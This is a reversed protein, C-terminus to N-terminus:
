RGIDIKTLSQSKCTQSPGLTLKFDSVTGSGMYAPLSSLDIQMVGARLRLEVANKPDYAESEKKWALWAMFSENSGGCDLGVVLKHSSAVSLAQSPRIEYVNAVQGSVILGDHKSEYPDKLLKANLFASSQFNEDRGMNVTPPPFKLFWPERLAREVITVFVYDPKFHNVIEALQGQDTVEYHLQLVESFTTAMLPALNNGFSDRLWLVKAQNLASKSKYVKPERPAPVHPASGLVELRQQTKFDFVEVPSAQELRIEIGIDQDKLQDVLGLFKALDGGTRERPQHITVSKEDPLKIPLNAAVLPKFFLNFGFWAGLNNWHSDTKYYLNQQNQAKAEIMGPRLDVFLPLDINQVFTDTTHPTIALGWLPLHESYISEKDPAIMVKFAKVDRAALWQEWAKLNSRRQTWLAPKEEPAPMRKNSLTRMNEDGLFLWDNYGAVVKDPSTSIGLTLLGGRVLPMVTDLNYLTTSDWRKKEKSQPKVPPDRTFVNFAPLLLAFLVLLGFFVLAKRKM